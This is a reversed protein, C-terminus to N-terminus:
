AARTGAYQRAKIELFIREYESATTDVAELVIEREQESLDELMQEYSEIHGPDEKTHVHIHKVAKMGFSSKVRAMVPEGASIAIRELFYAYGFLAFPSCRDILYYASRYLAKTAPLEQFNALSYGLSRLDSLALLEHSREEAAHSLCHLHLKEHEPGFGAAAAALLRTSHVIHYYTQALTDAYILQNSWDLELITATVREIRASTYDKVSERKM